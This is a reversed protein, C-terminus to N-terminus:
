VFCMSAIRCKVLPMWKTKVTYKLKQVELHKLWIVQRYLEICKLKYEHSYRM